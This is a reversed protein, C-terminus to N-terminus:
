GLPFSALVEWRGGPLSEAMMTVASARATVPLAPTIELEARRLEDAPRDLGITLHPV